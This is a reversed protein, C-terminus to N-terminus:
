LNKQLELIRKQKVPERNKKAFTTHYQHNQLFAIQQKLWSDKSDVLQFAKLEQYLKNSIEPYDHRGLYDLDSDCIIRELKTKPMQPTKTAMILSQVRKITQADIGLKTMEVAALRASEDEHKKYSNVFGTDHFLAAIRLLKAEKQTVSERRIYANCVKLVNLTHKPGHYHHAVTLGNELLQLARKRLKYYGKM